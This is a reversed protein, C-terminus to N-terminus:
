FICVKPEAGVPTTYASAFPVMCALGATFLSFLSFDSMTFTNHQKQHTESTETTTTFNFKPPFLSQLSNTRTRHFSHCFYLHSRTHHHQSSSISHLPPRPCASRMYLELWKVQRVRQPVMAFPRRGDAPPISALGRLTEVPGQRNLPGCGTWKPCITASPRSDFKGHERSNASCSEGDLRPRLRESM